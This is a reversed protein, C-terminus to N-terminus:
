STETRRKKAQVGRAEVKGIAPLVRVAHFVYGEAGGRGTMLPHTRGPLVQWTRVRSTHLTPALLLTPDVPFDEEKDDAAGEAVERKYTIYATRRATSYLDALQVLPEIYPSYVVVQASGALLPVTHKLISAPDMLTAVILGDFGGARTEDVTNRVKTWRRKKKFHMSRKSPEWSAARRALKTLTTHSASMSMADVAPADDETSQPPRAGQKTTSSLGEGSLVEPPYLIGAREAMAAVVLGGTDDVILWRGKAQNVGDLKAAGDPEGSGGYHVNAWAGILGIAEDRLELIRGPDKQELMWETLASVDMPEVTFRHLYKKRKRLMYKARSFQTKQDLASHSELLKSIIERGADTSSQKLEEIQQMTLQQTSKNDIINRNDEQPFATSPTSTGAEGDGDGEGDALLAETHLEAAPVIHLVHGDADANDAIEFTAYFPRGIIQNCPFSGYKGLSINRANLNAVVEIVPGSPPKGYSNPVTQVIKTVESPLKLAVYVNPPISSHM